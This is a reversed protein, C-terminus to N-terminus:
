FPKQNFVDVAICANCQMCAYSKRIIIKKESLHNNLANEIDILIQADIVPYTNLVCKDYPRFPMITPTVGICIMNIAEKITYEKPEIGAILVSGVNWDGLRKVARKFAKYYLEKTLKSKGPCFRQRYYFDSFELNMILSSIGAEAIMDIYSLEEPTASEISIKISPFEKRVTKVVQSFYMLGRDVGCRTGGSLALSYNPNDKLAQLLIECIHKAQLEPQYDYGQDSTCFLCGEGAMKFCCSNHSSFALTEAGHLSMLDGMRIGDSTYSDYWKPIERMNISSCITDDKKLVLGNGLVEISYPSKEAFKEGIVANVYEGNELQFVSPHVFKSSNIYLRNREIYCRATETLQVGYCLLEKKIISYNGPHKM